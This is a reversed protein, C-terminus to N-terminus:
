LSGKQVKVGTAGLLRVTNRRHRDVAEQQVHGTVFYRQAVKWDQFPNNSKLLAALLANSRGKVHVRVRDWLVDVHERLGSDYGITVGSRGLAVKLACEAALGFLQDANDLRKAALLQEADHWHRAAADEYNDMLKFYHLGDVVSVRLRLRRGVGMVSVATKRM